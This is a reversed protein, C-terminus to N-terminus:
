WLGHGLDILDTLQKAFCSREVLDKIYEMDRDQERVLALRHAVVGLSGVSVDCFELGLYGFMVLSEDSQVLGLLDFDM